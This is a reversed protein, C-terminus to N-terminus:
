KSRWTALSSVLILEIEWCRAAVIRLFLSGLGAVITAVLSKNLHGTKVWHLTSAYFVQFASRWGAQRTSDWFQRVAFGWGSHAMIDWAVTLAILTLVLSVSLAFLLRNHVETAQDLVAESNELKRRLILQRFLELTSFPSSTRAIGFIHSAAENYENMMIQTEVFSERMRPLPIGFLATMVVRGLPESLYRHVGSGAKINAMKRIRLNLYVKAGWNAFELLLLGLAYALILVFAGEVTPSATLHSGLADRVGWGSFWILFALATLGPAIVSLLHGLSFRELIKEMRHSESREPKVSAWHRKL